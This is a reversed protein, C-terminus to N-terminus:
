KYARRRTQALTYASVPFVGMTTTPRVSGTSMPDDPELVAVREATAPMSIVPSLAFPRLTLDEM